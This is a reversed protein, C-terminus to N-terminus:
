CLKTKRATHEIVPHLM